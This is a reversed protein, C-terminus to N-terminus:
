SSSGPESQRVIEVIESWRRRTEESAGAPLTYGDAVLREIGARVMRRFKRRWIEAQVERLITQAARRRQIAARNM